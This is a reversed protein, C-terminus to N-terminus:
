SLVKWVIIAGATDGTILRTASPNWMAIRVPTHGHKSDAAFVCSSTPVSMVGGGGGSGVNPTTSIGWVSIYGDEWGSAIIKSKPHWAVVVARTKRQVKCEELCVGEELYFSICHDDTVVACIPEVTCWAVATVKTEGPLSCPFDLFLSM